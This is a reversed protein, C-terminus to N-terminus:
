RQTLTDTSQSVWRISRAQYSDAQEKWNHTGALKVYGHVLRSGRLHDRESVLRAKASEEDRSVDTSSVM